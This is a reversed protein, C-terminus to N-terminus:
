NVVFVRLSTMDLAVLRRSAIKWQEGMKAYVDEWCASGLREMDVQAGRMEFHFRGTASTPGRLEILHAHVLPRPRVENVVNEYMKKLEARGRTVVENEAGKVTFTGHETFLSVLGEVDGRYLCDCYLMTLERIAERDALERLVEETTKM